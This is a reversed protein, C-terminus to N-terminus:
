KKAARNYAEDYYKQFHGGPGGRKSGSAGDAEGDGTAEREDADNDDDADERLPNKNWRWNGPSASPMDTALHEAEEEGEQAGQKIADIGEAGFIWLSKQEPRLNLRQFEVDSLPDKKAYAFITGIPVDAIEVGPNAILYNMAHQKLKELWDAASEEKELITSLEEKIIQRLKSKSIKM